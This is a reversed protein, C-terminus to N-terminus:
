NPIRMGNLVIIQEAKTAAKKLVARHARTFKSDPPLNFVRRGLGELGLKQLSDPTTTRFVDLLLLAAFGVPGNLSVKKVTKKSKSM